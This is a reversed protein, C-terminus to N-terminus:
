TQRPTFNHYADFSALRLISSSSRCVYSVHHHCVIIFCCVTSVTSIFFLGFSGTTFRYCHLCFCARTDREEREYDAEDHRAEDPMMTNRLRAEDLRAGRERLGRAPM